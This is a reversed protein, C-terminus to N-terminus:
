DDRSETFTHSEISGQDPEPPTAIPGPKFHFDLEAGAAVIEPISIYGVSEREGREGGGGFLDAYGFCQTMFQEPTDDHDGRDLEAIWWDASGKFYHLYYFTEEAGEQEYTRPMSDIRTALEAMKQQFFAGEEGKMLSRVAEWQQVSMFRSLKKHASVGDRQVSAASQEPTEGLMLLVPDMKQFEQIVIAREAEIDAGRPIQAYAVVIEIEPRPYVGTRLKIRRRLEAAAAASLGECFEELQREQTSLLERVTAKIM